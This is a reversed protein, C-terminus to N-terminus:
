QGGPIIWLYVRTAKLHKSIWVPTRDKGGTDSKEIVLKVPLAHAEPLIRVAGENKQRLPEASLYYIEDGPKLTTLIAWGPIDLNVERPPGFKRSFWAASASTADARGVWETIKSVIRARADPETERDAAKLLEAGLEQKLAPSYYAAKLYMGLAREKMGETLAARGEEEWAGAAEVALTKDKEVAEDIATDAEPYNKIKLLCIGLRLRTAPEGPREAVRNRYYEAAERYRGKAMLSAGTDGPRPETPTAFATQVALLSLIAAILAPLNRRGGTKANADARDPKM